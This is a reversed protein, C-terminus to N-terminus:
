HDAAPNDVSGEGGKRIPPELMRRNNESPFLTLLAQAYERFEDPRLYPKPYMSQTLYIDVEPIDGHKEILAQRRREYLEEKSLETWHRRSEETKHPLPDEQVNDSDHESSIEDFSMRSEERPELVAADQHETHEVLGTEVPADEIIASLEPMSTDTTSPDGNESASPTGANDAPQTVAPPLQPVSNVFRTYELYVMCATGLVILVICAFIVKKM